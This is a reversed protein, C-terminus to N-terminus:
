HYLKHSSLRRVGAPDTTDYPMHAGRVHIPVRRIWEAEGWKDLLVQGLRQREADITHKGQKNIHADKIKGFALLVSAVSCRRDAITSVRRPQHSLSPLQDLLWTVEESGSEGRVRVSAVLGCDAVTTSPQRYAANPSSHM